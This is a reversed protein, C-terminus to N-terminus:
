QNESVVHPDPLPPNFSAATLVVGLRAGDRPAVYPNHIFM